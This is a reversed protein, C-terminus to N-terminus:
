TKDIMFIVLVSWPVIELHKNLNKENIKM